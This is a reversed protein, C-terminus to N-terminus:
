ERPCVADAVTVFEGVIQGAANIGTATTSLAGPVDITTFVGATGLFGHTGTANFFEGVIQGSDNIGFATTTNGPATAPVDITTFIGATDLFSHEGARTIFVGVIQGATNIGNAITFGANPVDIVTFTYSVAWSETS